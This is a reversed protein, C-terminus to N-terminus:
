HGVRIQSADSSEYRLRNLIKSCVKSSLTNACSEVDNYMLEGIGSMICVSTMLRSDNKRKKVTLTDNLVANIECIKRCKESM